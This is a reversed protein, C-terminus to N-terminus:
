KSFWPIKSSSKTFTIPSYATLLFNIFFRLVAAALNVNPSFVAAPPSRLYLTVAEKDVKKFNRFGTQNLPNSRTTTPLTLRLTAHDSTGIPPSLSAEGNANTIFFDLTSRSTSTLRTDGTKIVKLGFGKCFSLFDAWLERDCDSSINFDGFIIILKNSNSVHSVLVTSLEDLFTDLPINPPRYCGICHSIPNSLLKIVLIEAKTTIPVVSAKFQDKLYIAIGGGHRNRDARFLNYSPIAFESNELDKGLWSEVIFIGMCELDPQVFDKLFSYNAPLSRVNAGFFSISSPTIKPVFPPATLMLTPPCLCKLCRWNLRLSVGESIKLHLCSYHAWSNCGSCHIASQYRLVIISFCIFCPLVSTPLM